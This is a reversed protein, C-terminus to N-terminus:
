DLDPEAALQDDLQDLLLGAASLGAQDPPGADPGGAQGLFRELSRALDSASAYGFTGASGALQHATREAAAWGADDLGQSAALELAARVEAARVLNTQRARGAIASLVTAMREAPPPVPSGTM